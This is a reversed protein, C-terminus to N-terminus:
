KDFFYVGPAWAHVHLSRTSVFDTSGVTFGHHGLFGSGWSILVYSEANTEAGSLIVVNPGIKPALEFLGPPFDGSLESRRFTTNTAQRAIFSTAWSQLQAATIVKKANRELNDFQRVSKCVADIYAAMCVLLVVITIFTAKM